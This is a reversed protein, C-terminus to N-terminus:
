AFITEMSTWFVSRRQLRTCSFCLRAEMVKEKNPLLSKKRKGAESDEEEEVEEKRDEGLPSTPCEEQVDGYPSLYIEDDPQSAQRKEMKAAVNKKDIASFCYKITAQYTHNRINSLKPFEGIVKCFFTETVNLFLVNKVFLNLHRRMEYVDIVTVLEEIRRSIRSDM